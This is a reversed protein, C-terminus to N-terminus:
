NGTGATVAHMLDQDSNSKHGVIFKGFVHALFSLHVTSRRRYLGMSNFRLAYYSIKLIEIQVERDFHM